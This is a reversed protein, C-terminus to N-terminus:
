SPAGKKGRKKTAARRSTVTSKLHDCSQLLREAYSFATRKAASETLFACWVIIMVISVVLTLAEGPALNELQDAVVFPQRVVLVKAHILCWAICIAAVAIGYPRIGLSNRQFGFAVNEKFVLPFAKTDRTQGILWMSAARYIEDAAVPEASEEEATPLSKGLSEALIRHFREKTHRDFLSNRFRLLQITPAGGWKAFLRDQLRKGTDRSVRGLLYGGGCFSVISLPGSVWPYAPGYLGLLLVPLPMLALLGPYLRAPRDYPDFLAKPVLHQLDM